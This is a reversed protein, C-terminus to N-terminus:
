MWPSVIVKPIIPEITIKYDTGLNSSITNVFVIKKHM